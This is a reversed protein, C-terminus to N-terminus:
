RGNRRFYELERAAAESGLEAARELWRAAEAHDVKVGHGYMYTQAIMHAAEADGDAVLEVFHALATRHDGPSWSRATAPLAPASGYSGPQGFAPVHQASTGSRFTDTVKEPNCVAFLTSAALVLTLAYLVNGM